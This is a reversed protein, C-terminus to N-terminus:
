RSSTCHRDNLGIAQSFDAGRQQPGGARRLLLRVRDGDAADIGIQRAVVGVADDGHRGVDVTDLGAVDHGPGLELDHLFRRGRGDDVAM